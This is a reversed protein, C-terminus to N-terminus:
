FTSKNAKFFFLIENYLEVRSKELHMVHTGKELVVYKKSKANELSLFLNEADANNPYKDWEGRIILTSSKIDRPNYYPKNHLLDEVDQNPGSPFRISETKFKRLLPDSKRWNEGWNTFIEKELQCIEGDPTLSKMADIRQKPTMEDFSGKINEAEYPENRVTITAFLVLKEIKEPFKSAYLAAVSGGWSHGILYVKNKGTKKIILDVAKDVDLFVDQARGVVKSEKSHNEMEPYRDSNGYGLFDLSFVDYGNESLNTMWSTNNMKFNFSLATPFSSGHLFLVPYDNSIVKPQMHNIAIDLNNIRSQIKLVEISNMTNEKSIIRNNQANIQYLGLICILVSIKYRIM